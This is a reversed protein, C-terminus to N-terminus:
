RLQALIAQSLRRIESRHRRYGNNIPIQECYPSQAKWLTVMDRLHPPAERLLRNFFERLLDNTTVDNENTVDAPLRAVVGQPDDPGSADSLYLPQKHRSRYKAEVLSDIVHCVYNNFSTQTELDLLRPHRGVKPSTFGVLIQQLADQAMDGADSSNLGVRELRYRAYKQLRYLETQTLTNMLQRCTASTTDSQPEHSVSDVAAPSVIISHKTEM